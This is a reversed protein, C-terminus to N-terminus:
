IGAAEMWANLPDVFIYIQDVVFSDTSFIATDGPRLFINVKGRVRRKGDAQLGYYSVGDLDVPRPNVIAETRYGSLSLSSSYVGHDYSVSELTSRDLESLHRTGDEVISGAFIILEGDKRDEAYSLYTMADPVVCAVLTPAGFRRRMQLSSMPVEVDDLGAKRLVCIFVERRPQASPLAWRTAPPIARIAWSDIVYTPPEIQRWAWGEPAFKYATPAGDAWASEALVSIPFYVRRSPPFDEYAWAQPVKEYGDPAFDEFVWLTPIDIIEFTDYDYWETSIAYFNFLGVWGSGTLSEDTESILWDEPEDGRAGAWVKGRLNKGIVQLRMYYWTNASWSFAESKIATAAGSVYKLLQIIDGASGGARFNLLYLSESGGSGSGRCMIGHHITSTTISTTKRTTRMRCVIDVDAASHADFSVARRADTSASFQGRLVKGGTTGTVARVTWSHNATSFRPTWGSPQADTTYESFDTHIAM